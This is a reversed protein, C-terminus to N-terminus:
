TRPQNLVSESQRARERVSEVVNQEIVQLSDAKASTYELESLRQERAIRLIPTRYEARFVWEWRAKRGKGMRVRTWRTTIREDM